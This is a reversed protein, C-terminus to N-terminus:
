RSCVLIQGLEKVEAMGVGVGWHRGLSCVRSRGSQYQGLQNKIIKFLIKKPEKGLHNKIFMLKSLIMWEM